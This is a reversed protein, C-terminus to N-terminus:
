GKECDRVKCNGVVAVVVAAAAAPPDAAAVELLPVLHLPLLPSLARSPVAWAPHLEM